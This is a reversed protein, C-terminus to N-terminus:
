ETRRHAAYGLHFLVDDVIMDLLQPHLRKEHGTHPDRFREDPKWAGFPSLCYTSFHDLYCRLVEMKGDSTGYVVFGDSFELRSLSLPPGTEDFPSVIEVHVASVVSWDRRATPTTIRLRNVTESSLVVHTVCKQYELVAGRRLRYPTRPIHTADGIYESLRSLVAQHEICPTADLVAVSPEVMRPCYSLLEGTKDFHPLHPSSLVGGWDPSLDKATEIRGGHTARAVVVSQPASAVEDLRLLPVSQHGYLGDERSLSSWYLHGAPPFRHSVVM